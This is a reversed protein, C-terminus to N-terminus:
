TLRALTHNGKAAAGGILVGKDMLNRVKHNWALM